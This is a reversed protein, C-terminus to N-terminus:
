ICIQWRYFSAMHCKTTERCEKNWKSLKKEEEEEWQHVVFIVYIVRFIDISIHRKPSAQTWDLSHLNERKVRYTKIVLRLKMLSFLYKSQEPITLLNFITLNGFFFFYRELREVHFGGIIPAVVKGM